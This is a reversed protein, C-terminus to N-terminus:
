SWFPDNIGEYGRDRLINSTVDLSPFENVIEACLASLLENGLANGYIGRLAKEYWNTLNTETVISQIKSKWGIQNLISRIIREEAARCVIVIRDSSVSSAIGEALEEDLCLHKVQIAPGWNSYM